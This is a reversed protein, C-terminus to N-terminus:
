IEAQCEHVNEVNFMSSQVNEKLLCDERAREGGAM